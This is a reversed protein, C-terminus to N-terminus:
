DKCAAILDAFSGDRDADEVLEAHTVHSVEGDADRAAPMADWMDIQKTRTEDFMGGVPKDGGRLPKSGQAEIKEKTTVPKVGDILTQDGASTAETLAAAATEGAQSTGPEPTAGVPRLSGEDDGARPLRQRDPASAPRGGSAGEGVTRGATGRIDPVTGADQGVGLAPKEDFFPLDSDDYPQDGREAAADAFQRYDEELARDLAALEDTEDDVLEAARVMIADAVRELGVSQAASDVRGILRRYAEQAKERQEFDMQEFQRGGDNRASLVPEGGAEQRLLRLLDDVTSEATARDPDGYIHDFYGAEAAAERAMDLQKGNKRVLAGGGPVFKRSLGMAALEGADDRLGGVAKSSLFQMLTVPKKPAPGLPQEQRVIRDIAEFREQVDPGIGPVSDRPEEIARITQAALTDAAAQPLDAPPDGFAARDLAPQEAALDAVREAQPDLRLGLADAITRADGPEPAGMAARQLVEPAVAKGTLRLVEGGGALLGGFGGGFLAAIGVQQLADGFGADVGARRKYDQAAAQVGAEVGANVAAETFMMSMVRGFATRAGGSIGGGAFLSAVQLPDRLMGTVGGGLINLVRRTTGLGAAGADAEAFGTEAERTIAFADEVIPREAAIIGAFEPKDAALMRVKELWAKEQGAINDRAAPEPLGAAGPTPKLALVDYTMPNDLQVGSAEFIAKNRRDYAEAKASWENNANDRFRQLNDTATWLAGAQSDGERMSDLNPAFTPREPMKPEYIFMSM